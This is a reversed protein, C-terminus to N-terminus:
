SAAAVIARYAAEPDAAGTVPRGIVLHTAGAKVASAPDAVRAQDGAAAGPSRIGPTVVWGGSGLVGRVAAAEHVACVVADVGADRAVIALRTVEAGVNSEAARGTAAAYSAPTHSTLVSVAALRMGGDKAAVAAARLMESGGLAHVTALAVGARSAARVAGDVAHPIDHWKLDLFVKAERAQLERLLPVGGDIFLMPGVKVWRVGPLRDVLQLASQVSPFDLAVIVEAM